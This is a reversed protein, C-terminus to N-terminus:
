TRPASWERALVQLLPVLRPQDPVVVHHLGAAACAVACTPGIAGVLVSRSLAEVLAGRRAGGAVDLLHRVQVQSTFAVIPLTGAIFDDVANSLPGIDAPLQWEYLMLEVAQAGHSELWGVILDNREGYHVVAVVRGAVPQQELTSLVEATTFPAPVAVGASVGHRSLAGAPKPGRVITVTKRLAEQLAAQCRLREAVAFLRNVAAGTLFVAMSGPVAELREIFRVVDDGADVDVEALAPATVPEGGLRRVLSAAEAALRAELVAVRAGRFSPASTDTM